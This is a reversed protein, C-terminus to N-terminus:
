NWRELHAGNWRAVPKGQLMGNPMSAKGATEEDSAAILSWAAVDAGRTKQPRFIVQIRDSSGSRQSFRTRGALDREQTDSCLRFDKGGGSSPSLPQGAQVAGTTAPRLRCAPWRLDPTHLGLSGAAFNECIRVRIMRPRAAVRTRTRFQLILKKGSLGVCAREEASKRRVAPGGGWAQRRLPLFRPAM